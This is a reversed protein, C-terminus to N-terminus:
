LEVKYKENLDRIVSYLLMVNQYSWIRILVPVHAIHGSGVEMDEDMQLEKAIAEDSLSGETEQTPQGLGFLSSNSNKYM